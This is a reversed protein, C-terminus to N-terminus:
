SYLARPKSLALTEKFNDVIICFVRCIQKQWSFAELKGWLSEQIM